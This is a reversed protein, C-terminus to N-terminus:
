PELQRDEVGAALDRLVAADRRHGADVHETLAELVPAVGVEDVADAEVGPVDGLVDAARPGVAFAQGGGEIGRFSGGIFVMVGVVGSRSPADNSTITTPARAAPAAVAM